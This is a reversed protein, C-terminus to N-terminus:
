RGHAGAAGPWRPERVGDFTKLVLAPGQPTHLKM